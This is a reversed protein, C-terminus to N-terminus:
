QKGGITPPMDENNELVDALERLAHIMDERKSNSVYNAVGPEHWEYLMVCFGMRKGFVEVIIEEMTEAISQMFVETVDM